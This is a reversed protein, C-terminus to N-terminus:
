VAKRDEAQTFSTEIVSEYDSGDDMAQCIEKVSCSPCWWSSKNPYLKAEDTYAEEMDLLQNHVQFEYAEVEDANRRPEFRQFFPDWGKALLGELCAAHEPSSVRGRKYLGLDKLAQRYMDPTTLQDKATSLAKGESNHPGNKKNGQVWRPEKPLQKVLYNFIVGRPIKGTLRWVVYCYGTIQDDFDLGRDNPASSTTKHDVIWLGKYPTAREVLMDIRATLYIPDGDRLMPEKTLPHVIPVMCRGSDHVIVDAEKPYGKPRKNAFTDMGAGEIALVKNWTVPSAEEFLAYQELIGEGLTRLQFVEEQVESTYLGGLDDAMKDDLEQYWEELAKVAADVPDIANKAVGYNGQYYYAELASHIGTGFQLAWSPAKPTLNEITELNWRRRCTRFGGRETVSIDRLSKTLDLPTPEHATAM